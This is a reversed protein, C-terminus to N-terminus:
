KSASTVTEDDNGQTQAYAKQIDAEEFNGKKEEICTTPGSRFIIGHSWHRVVHM